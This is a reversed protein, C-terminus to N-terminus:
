LSSHGQSTDAPGPWEEAAQGAGPDKQCVQDGLGEQAAGQGGQLLLHGHENRVTHVHEVVALSDSVHTLEDQATQLRAAVECLRKAFKNEKGEKLRQNDKKSYFTGIGGAFGRLLDSSTGAVGLGLVVEGSLGLMSAVRSTDMNVGKLISLHNRGIHEMGTYIFQLCSEIDELKKRYDQVLAGLARKDHDIAVKNKIEPHAKTLRGAALVGVGVATIALSIGMTFPALVIGTMAVASGVARRTGGTAGAAKLKGYAKSIHDATRNMEGIHNQLTVGHTSMLHWYLQVARQVRHVKEALMRLETDPSQSMKEWSKVTRWWAMLEENSQSMFQVMVRQSELSDRRQPRPLSSSGSPQYGPVPLYPGPPQYGPVPPNPGPPQYGPVSPYPGSPQYGPVPPYPGPPQYGPVPPYFPSFGSATLPPATAQLPHTETDLLAEEYSPPQLDGGSWVNQYSPPPPPAAWGRGAM